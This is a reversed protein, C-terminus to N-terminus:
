WNWVLLSLSFVIFSLLTLNFCHTSMLYLIVRGCTDLYGCAPWYLSNYLFSSILFSGTCRTSFISSFCCLKLFYLCLIWLCETNNKSSHEKPFKIGKEWLIFRQTKLTELLVLGSHFVLKLIVREEINFCLFSM